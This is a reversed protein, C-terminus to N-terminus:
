HAPIISAGSALTATPAEPVTVDVSGLSLRQEQAYALIARLAEGKAVAESADGYTVSVGSKLILLIEGDSGVSVSAVASRLDMPLAGAVGAGEVLTEGVPADASGLSLIRPLSETGVTRGLDTGDAAVIRLNPGVGVHAAPVRETLYVKLTSPLSRSVTAAQVWPNIELRRQSAALDAHLLNTGNSLHALRLVQARALHHEGRVVITKAEFVPTYSAGLGAAGLIALTGAVIVWPALRWRLAPDAVHAAVAAPDVAASSEYAVAADTVAGEDGDGDNM